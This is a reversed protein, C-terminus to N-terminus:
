DKEELKIMVKTIYADPDSIAFENLGIEYAYGTLTLQKKEAYELMKAYLAPLRDWTGQQYGCIYKGKPKILSPPSFSHGLAPTYIGDYKEFNKEYVKDLSLFGGIGMRIQELSWSDKVSAFLHPLQDQAFDYPLVLIRESTHEEIRVDQGSLDHCLDIQEKKTQLIKKTRKLKRIERDIEETKTEAIKLFKDPTPDKRYTQIEEISMNLEKLMRIYEFELSQSIDYYRYGNEMRTQPCFLGIHDYYHLTRKNVEYIKAFQATTLSRHNQKM